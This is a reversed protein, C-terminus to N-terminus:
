GMYEWASQYNAHKEIHDLLAAYTPNNSITASDGIIILKKKARTLAVNLRRTDALFGIENRDNSRVLSIYIVDKEQGQFGDITDAEIGLSRLEEDEQIQSNIYRVQDAYPTIVGITFGAIKEKSQLIHERLIFYEGHNSLSRYEHNFKEEFGTGVTDIFILRKSDNPLSRDAVAEHSKLKDNYFTKNPFSLIENNMRYQTNLMHSYRCYDTMRDLLTHELGMKKAEQSKVTPPLQMHDGALIVKEAKLMAVWCEPELTQSAEDIVVTQFHLDEIMDNATGILTSLIVQAENIIESTIKQELARAWKLLEKSENILDRREEKQEFGYKRKFQNALKKSEEAEIKIKKIRNWEEHNRVKEDLTLHAIDDDIRTVNGIRLIKLGQHDLLSALHDTASNSPACVLVRKEKKVIEKILAVLTTTKGTGPPGHIIAFQNSELCSELAFLQSPNLNTHEYLPKYVENEDLKSQNRIGERLAKISGGKSQIVADIANKMITYPREDYIMEVGYNAWEPLTDKSIADYRLLVRMKDKRLYSITGSLEIDEGKHHTTLSVGV